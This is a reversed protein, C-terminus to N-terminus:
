TEDGRLHKSFFAVTQKLADSTASWNGGCMGRPKVCGVLQKTDTINKVAYGLKRDLTKTGCARYVPTNVMKPSRSSIFCHYAGPYIIVEVDAGAKRLEDARDECRTADNYDKEGILILMPAGTSKYDKIISSCPPYIPVHAAYRLGSPEIQAMYDEWQLRMAVNAGFSAGSIGIRQGDVKPHAALAVLTRVGDIYRSSSNLHRGTNRSPLGRGKYSDPFFIGMGNDLLARRLSGRWRSNGDGNITTPHVWVVVPFPGNGEPLHLKGSLNIPFSSPNGGHLGFDQQVNTSTFAVMESKTTAQCAMLALCMFISLFAKM